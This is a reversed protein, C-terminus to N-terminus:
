KQVEDPWEGTFVIEAPGSLLIERKGNWEVGLTGGLVKVEIKSDVYGLLQAAAIIACAGSGCALTEGVGREWTRAEVQERNIVRVVEFNTRRPFIELNEVKPGIQSLPFDTVAESQFYVAHPNGMSVLNLSLTKGDVNASYGLMSKNVSVKENGQKITVPIDDAGFRPEGMNAQIDIIRGNEKCLQVTRIGSLTEVRLQDTNARMIGKEFVYKALCRTGNGCAEAESGDADFIQMRFDAKSSPLMLLLSDAGIGYHRDCMAIALQPWNRNVDGSEIIVYDNGASQMKTFKM